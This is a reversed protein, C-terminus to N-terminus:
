HLVPAHEAEAEDRVARVRLIQQLLAALADVKTSAEFRGTMVHPLDASTPFYIFSAEWRLPDTIAIAAVLNWWGTMDNILDRLAAEYDDETRFPRDPTEQHREDRIATNERIWDQLEPDTMLDARGNM